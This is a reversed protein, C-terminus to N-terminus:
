ERCSCIIILHQASTSEENTITTDVSFVPKQLGAWLKLSCCIGYVRFRFYKQRQFSEPTQLGSVPIPFYFPGIRQSAGHLGRLLVHERRYTSMSSSVKLIFSVRLSVFSKNSLFFSTTSYIQKIKWRYQLLFAFIHMYIYFESTRPLIQQFEM